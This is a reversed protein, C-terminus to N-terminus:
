TTGPETMDTPQKIIKILQLTLGKLIFKKQLSQRIKEATARRPDFSVSLAASDVSVHIGHADVGAIKVVAHEIAAAQESNAELTGEIAFFAVHHGIALAQKISRHDYVAAVKDEVCYGCALVNFSGALLCLALVLRRM